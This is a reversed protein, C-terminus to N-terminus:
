VLEGQEGKENKLWILLNNSSFANFYCTEEALGMVIRIGLGEGPAATAQNERYWATPDFARNYDRLTLCIRDDNVFLRYEAAPATRKQDPNGHEIINSAMEEMFLAMRFAAREGNGQALCFERTRGAERVVDEMTRISGYLNKQSGGGFDAPLMMLEEISRPVRKNRICIVVFVTVALLVKGLALSVLLGKSGFAFSLAVASAVPFVLRDLVNLLIVTKRLRISRLYNMFVCIPIDALLSVSLCRIAFVGLAASEPESTYFGVIVPSLFFILVSTALAALLSLKMGYSFLRKLGIRDSASFYIGAMSVMTAAIGDPICFLVMNFDYQVGRAVIAATSVAFLLNLRNISLDRLTFALSQVMSPSGNKALESVDKRRLAKLSIHFFSRKRLLFAVLMGLQVAYSISTAVGMGFTGGHLVLANLLDGAIDVVCLVFASVTFYLKGNDLVVIPGIIQVALLAPLGIMYGQMYSHMQTYLEPKGAKTVGCLAMLPDPIVVCLLMLLLSVALGALICFNFISNAREKKGEGICGSCLIQNGSSLFSALMLFLGNLPGFLSIGSYAEKGLFRSTIIGDFFGAAMGVFLTFMMAISASLFMKSIVDKQRKNKPIGTSNM